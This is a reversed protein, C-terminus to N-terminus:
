MVSEFDSTALRAPELGAPPVVGIKPVYVVNVVIVSLVKNKLLHRKLHVKIVLSM